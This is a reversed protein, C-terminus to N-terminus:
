GGSGFTMSLLSGVTIGALLMAARRSRTGPVTVLVLLFAMFLAVIALSGNTVQM